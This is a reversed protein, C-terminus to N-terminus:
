FALQGVAEAIGWSNSAKTPGLLVSPATTLNDYAFYVATLEAGVGAITVGLCCRGHNVLPHSLQM